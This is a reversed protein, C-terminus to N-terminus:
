EECDPDDLEGEGVIDPDLARKGQLDHKAHIRKSRRITPVTSADAQKSSDDNPPGTHDNNDQLNASNPVNHIPHKLTQTGVGTTQKAESLETHVNNTPTESGTHAEITTEQKVKSM